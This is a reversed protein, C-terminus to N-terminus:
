QVLNFSSAVAIVFEAFNKNLSTSEIENQTPIVIQTGIYTQKTYTIWTLFHRTTERIQESFFEEM